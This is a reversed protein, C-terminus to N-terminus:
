SGDGAKPVSRLWRRVLREDAAIARLQRAPSLRSFWRLNEALEEFEGRTLGSVPSPEADRPAACYLELSDPSSQVM